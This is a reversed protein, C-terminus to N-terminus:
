KGEFFLHKLEIILFLVGVGLFMARGQWTPARKDSLSVFKLSKAYYFTKGVCGIVIAIVGVILALVDFFTM